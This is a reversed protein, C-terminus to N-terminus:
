EVVGQIPQNEISKALKHKRIHEILRTKIKEDEASKEGSLLYRTHEVIHVDHDDFEEVKIDGKQADLNEKLARSIQLSTLDNANDLSGFGMIELIKTKTREDIKGDKDSLLGTAFIELVASKKQAPTVSIENETDFVVDDSTLDSASFYFVEAKQSNGAIKMMRTKSSFQKFLRIIHKAIQKIARKIEEATSNLRTEDQELLVQLAVGSTANEPIASSRSVESVGSVSIFEETLRQEEYTLDVPVNGASMIQPPRSGQRYVIVKGPSLGEEVLEDTDISGDEVTVVGMSLRNIFEHKRNKIANYARQLPLLRDIISVGFFCTPLTISDQKVFPFDRKFDRGNLYPLESVAVLKDGAVTVVRGNPFAKSPREYREIVIANDHVVGGSIRAKGFFVSQAKDMKFVDVDGGEVRVGYIEEIDDVHMARAHIVSKVEDLSTRFLSDPYIEFPSVALVEIDGEYVSEGYPAGINKGKQDNWVIKYFSTGFVESFLTAKAIVGDLSLRHYTSNLVNTAIKATKIDCDEAGQARVSMIPRIRSLKAVRTEVIPAIHNYVNRNQWYYYKEEEDVEGSPTIECYQNGMLYNINLRWQQELERREKQRLLFDDKIEKVLEEEYRPNRKKELGM